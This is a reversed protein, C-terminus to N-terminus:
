AASEHSAPQFFVSPAPEGRVEAVQERIARMIVDTVGRLTTTETGDGSDTFCVPEGVSMTVRRRPRLRIRKRYLDVSAQAGWQGVPIVPVGPVLEALRAAGTKGIMPWGQPDRTVTGEPYIIVREGAKL